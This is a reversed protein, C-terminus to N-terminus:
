SFAFYDAGAPAQPSLAALAVLWRPRRCSFIPTHKHAVQARRGRWVSADGDVPASCSGEPREGAPEHGARLSRSAHGLPPVPLRALSLIQYECPHPPELGEQPVMASGAWQNDEGKKWKERVPPPSPELTLPKEDQNTGLLHANERTLRKREAERTYREAQKIDLWGFTAMLTHTSAGREAMRTAAAKRVGHSNKGAIGADKCWDAMKNGFGEATVARGYQTVLYTTTGVV